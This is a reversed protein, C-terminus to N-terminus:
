TGAQKLMWWVCRKTAGQAMPALPNYQVGFARRRSCTVSAKAALAARTRLRHAYVLLVWLTCACASPCVAPHTRRSSDGHAQAGRAQSAEMSRRPGPAVGRWTIHCGQWGESRASSYDGSFTVAAQFPSTTPAYSLAAFAAQAALWMGDQGCTTDVASPPSRPRAPLAAPSPALAKHLKPRDTGGGKSQVAVARCGHM